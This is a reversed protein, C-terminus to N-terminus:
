RNTLLIRALHASNQSWDAHEEALKRAENRLKMVTAPPSSILLKILSEALDTPDALRFLLGTVDPTVWEANGPINSAVVPSGCAMAQLLTVSSGDVESATIYASVSRLLAPLSEEPLTGIFRIRDAIELSRAVDELQARLSGDNGVLLFANPIKLAMCAFGRIIDEIRYIPELARLSLLAQAGEPVGFATLNARPGDSTFTALDVGWPITHVRESPIQTSLAIKRTHQSDVILGNLQAIWALGSQRDHAEVLDFGWSLGILPATIGILDHALDLPGVLVPDYAGQLKKRLNSISLRDRTVSLDTVTFGSSRLATTWRVDHVGWGQTVYTCEYPGGM